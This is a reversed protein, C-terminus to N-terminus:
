QAKKVKEWIRNRMGDLSKATVTTTFLKSRVEPTPYIARDQRIEASVANESAPVANAYAVYNTIKAMNDPRLLFDIFAHANDPHKARAPIALLDFWLSTGEKPLVYQVSFDKKSAAVRAAAQLIDGSYGLVVCFKGEALEDIYDSSFSVHPALKKLLREAGAYDEPNPSSPSRGLFKLVVPFVDEASDLVAIGCSALKAANEPKFLLQWSDLPVDPGLAARVKEPVIGLGTTGWLYPLGYANEPDAVALLRMLTPDLAKANPLKNKDLRRYFGAYIDRALSASSPVVVDFPEGGNEIAKRFEEESDFTQYDVAIKTEVEFQGVVVPDIYDGWNYVRLRKEEAAGAGLTFMALSVVGIFGRLVRM